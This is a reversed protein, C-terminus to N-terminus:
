NQPLILPGDFRFRAIEFENENITITINHQDHFFVVNRPMDRYALRNNQTSIAFRKINAQGLAENSKYPLQRRGYVSLGPKLQQVTVNDDYNIQGSVLGAARLGTLPFIVQQNTYDDFRCTIVSILRKEKFVPAGIYIQDALTFDKVVVARLQGFVIRNKHTHYNTFVNADVGTRWLVHDSLLIEVMDNAQISPLIIDTAVGPFHHLMDLRDDNNTNSHPPIVVVQAEKGDVMQINIARQVDNVTYIVNHIIHTGHARPIVNTDHAQSSAIMTYLIYIALTKFITSSM